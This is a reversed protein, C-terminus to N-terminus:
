QSPYWGWWDEKDCNTCKIRIAVLAKAGCWKCTFRDYLRYTPIRDLSRQMEQTKEDLLYETIVTPNLFM